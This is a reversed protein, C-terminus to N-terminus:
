AKSNYGMSRCMAYCWGGFSRGDLEWSGPGVQGCGSTKLPSTKESGLAVISSDPPGSKPPLDM